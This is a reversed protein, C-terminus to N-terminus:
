RLDLQYTRYPRDQGHPRSYRTIDAVFRFGVRQLVKGSAPNDAAHGAALRVLGLQDRAFAVAAAAAESALGGGWHAEDYWYGLEGHDSLIDDVDCMGIVRGDLEVAFRYATGATWEASHSDVWSAMEVPDVPWPALRLMRTVNWNSQIQVFRAADAPETPRLRLRATRMEFDRGPLANRRM